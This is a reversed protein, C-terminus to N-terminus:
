QKPIYGEVEFVEYEEVKFNYGGTLDERKFEKKDYTHGFNAYSDLNTNCNGSLHLDCGGGFTPLYHAGTSISYQQHEKKLPFKTKHDISFLFSHSQSKYNGIPNWTVETFGGCVKGFATKIIVLTNKKDDCKQHFVQSHFGDRTGRLLLKYKISSTSKSPLWKTIMAIDDANKIIRSDMYYSNTSQFTLLLIGNECRSAGGIFDNMTKQFAEIFTQAEMPDSFVTTPRLEGQSQISNKLGSLISSMGEAKNEFSKNESITENIQKILFELDAATECKNIGSIIGKETTLASLETKTQKGYFKNVKEKFYRFNYRINSLQNDLHSLLEQKTKNCLTNFNQFIEGVSVEVKFKEAEIHTSIKSVIEDESNLAALIDAPPEGKLFSGQQQTKEFHDVVRQIFEKIPVVSEKTQKDEISLICDICYLVNSGDITSVRQIKEGPHKKCTFERTISKASEM